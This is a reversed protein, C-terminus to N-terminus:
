PFLVTEENKVDLFQKTRVPDSSFQVKSVYSIAYEGDTLKKNIEHTNANHILKIEHDNYLCAFSNYMGGDQSTSQNKLNGSFGLHEDFKM